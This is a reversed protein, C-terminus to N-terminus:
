SPYYVPIQDVMEGRLSQVTLRLYSIPCVTNLVSTPFLVDIFYCNVIFCTYFIGLYKNMLIFTISILNQVICLTISPKNNPATGPEAKTDMTNHSDYTGGYKGGNKSFEVM